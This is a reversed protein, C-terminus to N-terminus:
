HRQAVSNSSWDLTYLTTRLAVIQAQEASTIGFHNRGTGFLEPATHVARMLGHAAHTKSAFLYHGMEHALARGMARSLLLDRYNLPMM